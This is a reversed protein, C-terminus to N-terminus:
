RHSISIIIKGREHKWGMKKILENVQEVTFGFKHMVDCKPCPNNETVFETIKILLEEQTKKWILQAPRKSKIDGPIYRVGKLHKIKQMQNLATVRSVGCLHVIDISTLRGKKKLEHIIVERPSLILKKIELLEDWIM